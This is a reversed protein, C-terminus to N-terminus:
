PTGKSGRPAVVPTVTQGIGEISTVLTQGPRLHRAPTRAHGVGGSTGTAIVDGPNLTIITSIYAILDTPTFLLDDIVSHQMLEGDVETSITAGPSLEDPTVMHPGFPATAEFMKGQLWERTRFQWDRMTVDNLITYGAIAEHAAAQTAHRVTSGIIVALEAEWDVANSEAPLVLPDFPGILSESFKAFLTPYEPLARGMENIHARYNLGVCVIKGPHPVVPAFQVFGLHHVRGDASLAEEEWRPASLFARVDAAGTEIATDGDLRVAATGEATLITALRM